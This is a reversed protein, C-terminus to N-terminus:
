GIPRRPNLTGGGARSELIGRGHEGSIRNKKTRQGREGRTDKEDEWKGEIYSSERGFPGGGMKPSYHCRDKEGM